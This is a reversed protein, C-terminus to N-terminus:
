LLHSNRLISFRVPYRDRHDKSSCCVKLLRLTVCDFVISMLLAPRRWGKKKDGATKIGESRLLWAELIDAQGATMRKRVVHVRIRGASEHLIKCKM